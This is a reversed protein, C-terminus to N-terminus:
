DEKIIEDSLFIRTLDVNAFIYVTGNNDAKCLYIPELEPDGPNPILLKYVQGDRPEEPMLELVETEAELGACLANEWFDIPPISFIYKFTMRDRGEM